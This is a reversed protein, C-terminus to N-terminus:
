GKKRRFDPRTYLYASQTEAQAEYEEKTAFTWSYDNDTTLGMNDMGELMQSEIFSYMDDLDLERNNICEDKTQDILDTMKGEQVQFYPYAQMVRRFARWYNSTRSEVEDQTMVDIDEYNAYENIIGGTENVWRQYGTQTHTPNQMFALGRLYEGYLFSYDGETSLERGGSAELEDFAPSYQAATVSNHKINKNIARIAQKITKLDNATPIDAPTIRVSYDNRHKGSTKTKRSARKQKLKRAQKVRQERAWKDTHFLPKKKM